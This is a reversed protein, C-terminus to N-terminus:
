FKTRCGGQQNKQIVWKAEVVTEPMNGTHPHGSCDADPLDTVGNKFKRHWWLDVSPIWKCKWVVVEEHKSSYNSIKRM